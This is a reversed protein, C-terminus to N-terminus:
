IKSKTCHIFITLKENAQFPTYRLGNFASEWFNNKIEKQYINIGHIYFANLLAENSFEPKPALFISQCSFSGIAM